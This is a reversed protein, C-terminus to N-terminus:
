RDLKENKVARRVAKIKEINFSKIKVSAQVVNVKNKLVVLDADLIVVHGMKRFPKTTKKGYLFPHVGPMALLTELGEYRAPGDHGPEGLLNVMAAPRYATTDGLPLGLIARLHQEYQSVDNARLTHHGSNHPRPAVENILITGTKTLFLEVALLGVIGLAEATRVAIQQARGSLDASIEAPAFLYEVLNAQPHFVMEVTPFCRVEGNPSRAVIVALEKEFLVVKELIGPEDFAQDLDAESTIRQVGRGDYGGQGLKHFAPLFAANKRVDDRNETLIFDATPLENERFFQKQRRKDQIIEVVEPQPYVRVGEDRLRKLADLNVSEIEITLVDLDRGFDYVTQFDQFSGVVFEPAIAACPADADPDLVRLRLDFDIAAQLLMRGLQGGGLLGLRTSTSFLEM